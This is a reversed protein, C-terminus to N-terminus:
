KVNNGNKKKSNNKLLLSVLGITLFSLKTSFMECDQSLYVTIQNFSSQNGLRPFNFKTIKTNHKCAMTM